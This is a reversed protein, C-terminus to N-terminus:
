QRMNTITNNADNTREQMMRDYAKSMNDQRNKKKMM